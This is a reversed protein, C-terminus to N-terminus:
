KKNGRGTDFFYRYEMWSSQMISSFSFIDTDPSKVREYRYGQEKAYFCYLIVRSDTEEQTSSLSEVESKVTKKRKESTLHFAKEGFTMVIKRNLLKPAAVDSSWVKLIVEIFQQKNEDDTLFKKWDAPRKTNEGKIILKSSTGRGDREMSKISNSLYANTSFVADSRKDLMELLRLSIQKFNNPLGKLCYFTANGDSVIFTLANPPRTEQEVDKTLFHFEKSKDTKLLRGDATGISYPIPTLPYAMLEKMSLREEQMQSQVLLKLTINGQQKYEIVKNKSTLVKVTKNKDAFTKLNMRKVPEFFDQECRNGRIFSRAVSIAGRRLLAEANSLNEEINAMFVAFFTLYRAYNQGDFAFFLDCIKFLCYRYLEFENCKVATILSLVLWIHDKYSVWLKATKGLAGNRVSEIFQHFEMLYAVIEENNLASILYKKCPCELLQQLLAKSAATLSSCVSDENRSLMFQEFLLREICELLIKHCHVSRGYNKGPMVGKISGCSILGAELLIDELGSAAMKKGVM